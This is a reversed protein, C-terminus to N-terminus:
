WNKEIKGKEKPDIKRVKKQINKEEGKLWVLRPHELLEGPNSDILSKSYSIFVICQFFIIKLITGFSKMFIPNNLLNLNKLM